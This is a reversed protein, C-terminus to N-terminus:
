LFYFNNSIIEIIKFFYILHYYYLYIYIHIYLLEIKSIPNKLYINEKFKNIKDLKNLNFYFKISKRIGKKLNV